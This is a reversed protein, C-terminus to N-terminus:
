LIKIENSEIARKAIIRIGKECIFWVQKRGGQRYARIKKIRLVAGDWIPPLKEEALSLALSNCYLYEGNQGSGTLLEIKHGAKVEIEGVRYSDMKQANLVISIGVFFMFLKKRM